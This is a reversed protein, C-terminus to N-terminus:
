AKAVLIGGIVILLAGLALYGINLRTHESFILLGLVVSVLTSMNALPVLQSIPLAYVTLGIALAVFGVGFLLGHASAYLGAELSISRESFIFYAALSALLIGAAFFLLYGSQGIGILNGQKQFLAGVGFAIAPVIGGVILGFSSSM